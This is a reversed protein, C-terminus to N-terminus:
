MVEKYTVEASAPIVLVQDRRIHQNFRVMYCHGIQFPLEKKIVVRRLKHGDYFGNFHFQRNGLYKSILIISKMIHVGSNSLSYNPCFFYLHEGM